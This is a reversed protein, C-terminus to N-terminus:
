FENLLVAGDMGSVEVAFSRTNGNEDVYSIGYCPITSDCSMGVMLPREPILETQSYLEKVAYKVNGTEDVDEFNLSLVKFDSVKSIAIFVVQRQEARDDATFVDYGNPELYADEIWQACVAPEEMSVSEMETELKMGPEYESFPTLYLVKADNVAGPTIDSYEAGKANCQFKGDKWTYIAYIMNGMGEQTTQGIILEPIGDENIEEVAYGLDYHAYNGFSKVADIIVQEGEEADSSDSGEMVWGYIRDLTNGHLEM